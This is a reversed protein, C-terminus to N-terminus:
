YGRMKIGRHMPGGTDKKEVTKKKRSIIELSQEDVSIEEPIKNDKSVKPVISYQVCGNIFEFRAVAIGIFGSYKCKM